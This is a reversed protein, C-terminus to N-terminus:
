IVRHVERLQGDDQLIFMGSIGLAQEGSGGFVVVADSGLTRAATLAKRARVLLQEATEINEEYAAIGANLRLRGDWPAPMREVESLVRSAYAWAGPVGEGQLLVIFTQPDLRGVVNMSRTGSHLAEATTALAEAEVAPGEIEMYEDLDAVEFLVVSLPPRRRAGEFLKDLFFQLSAGSPIRDLEAAARISSSGTRESELERDWSECLIGAGLAAAALSVVVAGLATLDPPTGARVGVAFTTLLIPVVAWALGYLAGLWGLHRTALFVPVLGLLWVLNIWAGAEPPALLRLLAALLPAVVSLVFPISPM